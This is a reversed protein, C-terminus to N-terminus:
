LPPMRGAIWSRALTGPRELHSAMCNAYKSFQGWDTDLINLRRLLVPLEMAPGKVEVVGGSLGVEREGYGLDAAVITSRIDYDLSLKMRTLFDEFRHRRFTILIVPRLPQEPSFGFGALTNILTTRDVIGGGLRSVELNAAPVLLQRRQKSGVYGQKSKLEIFVPTMAGYDAANGYWRIRVKNKKSDGASARQYQELDATDFYVSSVKQGEPYVMAPVGPRCIHRLLAYAFGIRDPYLFFKREIRETVEGVGKAM